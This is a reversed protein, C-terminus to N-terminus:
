KQLATLYSLLAAYDRKRWSAQWDLIELGQKYSREITPTLRPEFFATYEKKFEESSYVRAAYVPM